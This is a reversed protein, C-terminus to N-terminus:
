ENSIKKRYEACSRRLDEMSYATYTAMKDITKLIFTQTFNQAEAKTYSAPFKIAMLGTPICTEVITFVRTKEDLSMLTYYDNASFDRIFIISTKASDQQCFLQNQTAFTPLLIIALIYISKV